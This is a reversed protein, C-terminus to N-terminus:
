SLKAYESKAQILVPVDPDADKWLALFDQYATRAKANDGQLVYARALNLQALPVFVSLPNIGPNDLIRQFEAVAKAGDHLQLYALGRVYMTLHTFNHMPIAFDYPRSPELVAVADAPKNQRLLVLARAAPLSAHKTNFDDPFERSMDDAIRQAQASDGDFALALAVSARNTRDEAQRLLSLAAQRSGQTYGHVADRLVHSCSLNVPIANLGRQKALEVTRQATQRSLRIEGLSDQHAAIRLLFLQEIPKGTAFSVEREMAAEDRQYSALAYLYIHISYSDLKQAIASNAIAKAEDFRNLYMYASMQNQYAFNDQPAVRMHNAASVLAKERDGTLMYNLTLNALPPGDRPFVRLWQEYLEVEKQIDGTSFAYYHSIIYFKERESARDRLDYAKRTYEAADQRAGMNSSVTGLYSYAAAFTPDLEIARKFHPLASQEELRNHFAVGASYEKLAELSSTTAKELPTAFQQVSSLSEGLKQRLESAAKDLSKLVQEKGAAEAQQRALSDGTQANTAELTIVYNNGLSAISGAIIAKANERQSIERALDKTIREDPKRGMFRLAAQIKSEPLLNLYPSEELEVALAQKLTGDFVPDGTTNVFESLVVTDKDTLARTHRPFAFIAAIAVAALVAAGALWPIWKWSSAAAAPPVASSVGGAQAPISATYSAVPTSASSPVAHVSGSSPHPPASGSGHSDAAAIGTFASPNSGSELERKLRKLDTRMEAASQYRLNRDKDLAKQLITEFKEPVEPNLRVPSVPARNMIAEFILGSTEGRFPLQGTCMEYLVVGFSFLDTRPDLDKGRVQEPSMYAVTGLSTGPSTLQDTDAGITAMSNTDSSSRIASSVKALGFDLIKAHGRKTIFINAPKIDRHVINEAHAADLGDAIEIALNLLSEMDMPRGAILHKLTAGDLFEMAIFRHGEHEGIEYITCINAHNLSSAARAERRFRELALQDRTLDEPLFKLAVFRGLDTDEAKYVVGMGGGGLKELITYRSIKRGLLSQADSMHRKDYLLNQHQALTSLSSFSNVV